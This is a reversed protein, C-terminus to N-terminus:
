QYSILYWSSGVISYLITANRSNPFGESSPFTYVGNSIDYYTVGSAPALNFRQGRSRIHIVVGDYTSGLNNLNVTITSSAVLLYSQYVSGSSINVTTSGTYSNYGVFVDGAVYSTSTVSSGAITNSGVIPGYFGVSAAVRTGGLATGNLTLSTGSIAGSSVLSTCGVSTAGSITGSLALTTGSIAGSSVLSTCGVSTAGSISGNLTLTTGSITNGASIPGFVTGCLINSANGRVSGFFATSASISTGSITNGAAIPGFVTGCLVNSANGLVSGFFGTSAAVSTAGLITGTLTLSTGSITNGASIPGFVTGCLINSANGRVSGYFATSAAISSAGLITGSGTVTVGSTSIANSGAIAGYFNPASVSAANITNAYGLVRGIFTTGTVTTASILNSGAIAGYFNPASITAANITNAYGLFGGIFTTGTVTSARILNSGAIAGYLSKTGLILDGNTSQTWGTTAIESTSTNYVMINSLTTPTFRVPKVIFTNAVPANLEEGSANLIITNAVQTTFGALAGIAISYSGQSTQGANQGISISSSGQYQNGANQGISIASSGQNIRSANYGIAVSYVDQLIQGAQQGIAVAASRQNSAGAADGISIAAEYQGSRGAESGIAIAYTNQNLQGAFEGLAVTGFEQNSQGAYAGVAVANSYQGLNGALSGIAVSSVNQGITAAELGLQVSSSTLRFNAAVVNGSAVLANSVNTLLITNATTNGTNVAQDLNQGGQGLPIETISKVRGNADIEIQPVATGSGYTSPTVSTTWKLNWANGYYYNVSVNGSSVMINSSNDDTFYTSSGICLLNSPVVNGIGVNGSTKLSTTFINGNVFLVNSGTDRVWLNSGVTLTNSTGFSNGIAVNGTTVLSTTAGTLLLANSTSNGFNAVQDLTLALQNNTISTIRGSTDVSISPITATSGYTGTTTVGAVNSMFLASGYYYNATVNGTTVMGTNSGADNFITKTGISLLNLPNSNGIGVNGTTIMSTGGTNTLNIINSTSQGFGVVQDLTLVVPTSTISNIRGSSDVVIRPMNSTSGYTAATTAGAVNSMFRASGYYYNSTVNGTTVMGTNSGSDTFHTHVGICLLNSPNANGIGVNGSTVLSNVANTFQITNATTNGFNVVDSLKVQVQTNQIAVIRGFPSVTIQPMWFGNGYSANSADTLGTLFAANGYYNNATVNGTTVMGTNSGTENFVTRTGISLLNSPNLNGIGVNGSTVLSNIPNTFQVTNSTTNGYGVIQNLSASVPTTVISSIKGSSDVAIRAMETGSGYTGATTAGTVNSLFLASGYYYNATVNGTTVMGTNIGSDNFVTKTGISLLNLPNSNGIGVNGTTVLSMGGTNSLSIINSTTRGYGVVQDLTLVVPTSVIRTIKGTSDVVVQPMNSTQGYTGATTAGTVNSAYLASGYFFTASVNGSTVMGPNDGTDNFFTKTGISLLNSPAANGIGVNGSTILCVGGTNSLHVVNSTSRGYGVVQDLTLVVPTSTISNIRGSSDVVVQPMNSTQGYTAAATSGAVNSLFLASGYYYNATVNGTTIMGTNSGTENFVTKTGISLLNSPNLNGIGVNSTTRISTFHGVNASVNGRTVMTNSGFETFFTNAGISVLNLPNTNGIGVNGNTMFAIPGTLSIAKTSTNGSAESLVQDLTVNAIISLPTITSIRGNGDIIIQPVTRSTGYTGPAVSTTSRLFFANGHYRNASVNGTTVVTNSQDDIFYTSSGVSLLSTSTPTTNAISAPGVSTFSMTSNTFLITNSTTNGNNVTQNLTGSYESAVNSISTIKGYEDVTIIPIKIASGHTGATSIGAINSLNGGYGFYSNASVNGVTVIANSTASEEFYTKTGIALLHGPNGNAVGVGNFGTFLLGQTYIEGTGEVYSLVNGSVEGPSSRVPRVNFSGSNYPVFSGGTANLMISQDPFVDDAGTQYGVAISYLGHKTQAARYGIAISGVAQSTLGANQGVAVSQSGQDIQGANAGISVAQRDQNSQGAQSGIAVSLFGQSTQGSLEGVSVSQSGQFSFGSQAGIAVSGSQQINSGALLGIAISNSFQLNSGAGYGLAVAFVGQSNKGAQAGISISGAKQLYNGALNGIALTSEAQFSRGAMHGISIAFSSQNNQGAQYGISIANSSQVNQGALHGISISNAGQGFQGARQGFALSHANQGFQAAFEGLAVSRVAQVSQGALAGIAISAFGQSSQGALSGIAIANGSQTAQGAKFGVAVTNASQSTQGATYGLAVAGDRQSLQAAQYGVAVANVGQGSIGSFEGIAISASGQNSEGSRAGIAISSYGQTSAGANHGIAVANGSQSTLGAKFGISVTNSGQDTKGAEQGIAVAQSGAAGATVGLSTSEEGAGTTGIQMKTATAGSITIPGVFNLAVGSGLTTRSNVTDVEFFSKNQSYVQFKSTPASTGIGVYVNDVDGGPGLSILNGSSTTNGSFLVVQTDSDGADTTAPKSPDRASLTILGGGGSASLQGSQQVSIKAIAHKNNDSVTDGSAVFSFNAVDSGRANGADNSVLWVNAKNSSGYIKLVGATTLPRISLAGSNFQIEPDQTSFILNSRLLVNSSSVNMTNLIGVNANISLYGTQSTVINSTVVPLINTRGGFEVGEFFLRGDSLYQFGQGSQYNTTSLQRLILNSGITVSPGTGQPVILNTSTVAFNNSGTNIQTGNFYLSGSNASLTFNGDAVIDPTTASDAFQILRLSQTDGRSAM